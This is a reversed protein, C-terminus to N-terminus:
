ETAEMERRMIDDVTGRREILRENGDSDVMVSAPLNMSNYESKMVYSYAGIMGMVMLDGVHVIPFKRPLLTGDDSVTFVDGSECLNGGIVYEREGELEREDWGIFSIPHFSGYLSPRPNHNLGTNVIIFNYDPTHKVNEVQAILSGSGAVIFRGPEIQLQVDKGYELAFKEFTNTLQKGWENVPMSIEDEKYAVPLGGGIDVFDIDYDAFEKNVIKLTNDITAIWKQWDKPKSGSGIHSHIGILKLEYEKLVKKVEDLQDFYIGHKSSPGGTDTKKTEGHGKGPNIRISCSAGKKLKGILKIQDISSCNILINHELLKKFSDENAGEGTYLIRDNSFGARQARIVENMSVADINLGESKVIKLVAQLTLAKCAYRIQKNEYPIASKLKQCQERIEKESFIYLPTQYKQALRRIQSEPLKHSM